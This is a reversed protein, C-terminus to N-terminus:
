WILYQYKMVSVASSSYKKVKRRGRIKQIVALMDEEGEFTSM